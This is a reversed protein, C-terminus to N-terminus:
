KRLFKDTSHKIELTIKFGQWLIVAILTLKILIPKCVKMISKNIKRIGWLLIDRWLIFINTKILSIYPLTSHSMHMISKSTISTSNVKKYSNFNLLEFNTINFYIILVWSRFLNQCLLQIFIVMKINLSVTNM